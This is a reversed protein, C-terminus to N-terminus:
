NLFRATQFLVNFYRFFKSPGIDLKPGIIWSQISSKQYMKHMLCSKIKIYSRYTSVKHTMLVRCERVEKLSDWDCTGNMKM